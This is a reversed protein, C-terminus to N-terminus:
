DRVPTRAISSIHVVLVVLVISRSSCERSSTSTRVQLINTHVLVLELIWYVLKSSSSSAVISPSTGSSCGLVLILTTLKLRSRITEPGRLITLVWLAEGLWDCVPPSWVFCWIIFWPHALLTTRLIRFVRFPRHGTVPSPRQWLFRHAHPKLQTSRGIFM